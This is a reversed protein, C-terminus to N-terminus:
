DLKVSARRSTSIDPLKVPCSGEPSKQGNAQKSLDALQRPEVNVVYAEENVSSTLENKEIVVKSAWTDFYGFEVGDRGKQQRYVNIVALGAALFLLLPVGVASIIIPVYFM